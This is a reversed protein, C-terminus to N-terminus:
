PWVVAGEDAYVKKEGFDLNHMFLLWNWGSVAREMEVEGDVDEREAERRLRLVEKRMVAGRKVEDQISAAVADVM